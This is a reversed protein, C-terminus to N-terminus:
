GFTSSKLPVTRGEQWPPVLHSTDGGFCEALANQLHMFIDRLILWCLFKDAKQHEGEKNYNVSFCCNSHYIAIFLIILLCRAFISSRDQMMWKVSFTANGGRALWNEKAASLAPMDGTLVYATLDYKEMLCNKGSLQWHQGVVLKESQNLKRNHTACHQRGVLM